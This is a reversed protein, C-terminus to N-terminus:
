PHAAMLASGGRLWISSINAVKPDITACGDKGQPDCVYPGSALKKGSAALFLVCEYRYRGSAECDVYVGNESLVAAPPVSEPRRAATPILVAGNRLLIRTGDVASYTLEDIAAGRNRGLVVFRGSMWIDGTATEYVTCPIKDDALDRLCDVWAGGSAGGVWVASVPVDHPRAPLPDGNQRKGCFMTLALMLLSLIRSVVKAVDARSPAPPQTPDGVVLVVNVEPSSEGIGPKSEMRLKSIVGGDAM